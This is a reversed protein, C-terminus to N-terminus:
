INSVRKLIQPSSINYIFEQIGSIEGSVLTFYRIKDNISNEGKEQVYQYLCQAIAATTKSHDFLSIDPYSKYVASPILSTYKRLIHCVTDVTLYEISVKKIDNYFEEWIKKYSYELNNWLKGAVDKKSKMPFSTM